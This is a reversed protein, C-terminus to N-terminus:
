FIKRRNMPDLPPEYQWKDVTSTTERQYKKEIKANVQEFNKAEEKLFKDRKM